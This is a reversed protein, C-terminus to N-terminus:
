ANADEEFVTSEGIIIALIGSIVGIITATTFSYTAGNMNALVYFAMQMLIISILISMLYRM